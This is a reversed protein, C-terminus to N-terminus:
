IGGTSRALWYGLGDLLRDLDALDTQGERVFVFPSWLFATADQELAGENASMLHSSVGGLPGLNGRNYGQQSSPRQLPSRGDPLSSCSCKYSPNM